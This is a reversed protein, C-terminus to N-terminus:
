VAFPPARPNYHISPAARPAHVKTVPYAVAIFRGYAPIAIDSPPPLVAPNQRCAHCPGHDIQGQNSGGGCIIGSAVITTVGGQHVLTPLYPQYVFTLAFVAIVALAAALERM